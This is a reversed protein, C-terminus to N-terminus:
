SCDECIVRCTERVAEPKRLRRISEKMRSLKRPNRELEIIIQELDQIGRARIGIGNEQLVRINALEQGPIPNIFIPPVELAIAEAISLGGPKTVIVSSAAMLEHINDVFGFVRLSKGGRGKLRQYLRQNRACIVIVQIRPSLFGVIEELPGSGFSGSILLVTFKDELGLRRRQSAQDYEKTFKEDVPIGVNRIMERRVGANILESKATQSSVIYFDTGESIWFPHVAFDTLVTLLRSNILKKGKLRAAVESTLFHTSILFDPNERILMKVFNRTQIRCLFFVLSRLMAGIIELGTVWFIFGWLFPAKLISLNYGGSYARRFFSPSERLIDFLKIEADPKVKKLHNLIAEAAKFHGYGVSAYTIIIKM